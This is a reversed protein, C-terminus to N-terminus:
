PRSDASTRNRTCEYLEGDELFIGFHWRGGSENGLLLYTTGVMCGDLTLVDITM